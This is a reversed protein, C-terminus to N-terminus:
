LQANIVQLLSQSPKGDINLDNDLQFDQIAAETKADFKGSITSVYGLKKLKTQIEKILTQNTSKPEGGSGSATHKETTAAAHKKKTFPKTITSVVKAGASKAAGVFDKTSACGSLWLLCILTIIRIQAM